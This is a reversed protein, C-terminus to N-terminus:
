FLRLLDNLLLGVQQVLLSLIEILEVRECGGNQWVAVLNSILSKLIYDCPQLFHLLMCQSVLSHVDRAYYGFLFFQLILQFASQVLNIFQLSQNSLASEMVQVCDLWAHIISIVILSDVDIFDAIDYNTCIIAHVFLLVLIPGECFYTSAPVHRGQVGFGSAFTLALNWTEVERM